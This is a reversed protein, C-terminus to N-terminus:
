EKMWILSALRGSQADRRFSYFREVETYTCFDGGYFATVGITQLAIRALQYLDCLYHADDTAEFALENSLNKECFAQRVEAGVKFAAAGIAPGFWVLLESVASQMALVTQELVGAYLGRWGAHAVAVESGARNCFFVPLCDATLVACVTNRKQTVSADADAPSSPLIADARVVHHGHCQNLWVPPSPLAAFKILAQRNQKVRAPEDGTHLALNFDATSVADDATMSGRKVWRVWRTTTLAHVNVPAPWDALILELTDITPNNVLESIM